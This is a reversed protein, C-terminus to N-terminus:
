NQFVSFKGDGLMVPPDYALAVDALGDPRPSVSLKRIIFNNEVAVQSEGFFYQSEGRSQDINAGTADGDAACLVGIYDGSREPRFVVVVGFQVAQHMLHIAHDPGDHIIRGSVPRFWGTFLSDPPQFYRDDGRGNVKRM